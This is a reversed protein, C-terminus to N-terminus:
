LNYIKKELDALWAPALHVNKLLVWTGNKSAVNIAKDAQGFAEPSGIAVGVYKTGKQKALLEVKYSADYGPASVLMIPNYPSIAPGAFDMLEVPNINIINEGLLAQLFMRSVALLRDPRLIKLMIMKKLQRAVENTVSCDEDVRWPEPMLHTMGQDDMFKIWKDESTRNELDDKLGKFHISEAIEEMQAVQTTSLRSDFIDVSMVAPTLSTSSRMFIDFLEESIPDESLKIQALRM